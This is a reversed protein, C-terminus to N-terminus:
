DLESGKETYNLKDALDNKLFTNEEEQQPVTSLAPPTM